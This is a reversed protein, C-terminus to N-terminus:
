ASRRSTIWVGHKDTKSVLRFLRHKQRRAADEDTWFSLTKNKLSAMYELAALVHSCAIGKHEAWACTCRANLEKGENSFSITVVHHASPNTTSEVVYTQNDVRRAQLDRSRNQLQKINSPVVM